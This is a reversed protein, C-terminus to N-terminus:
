DGFLSRWVDTADCGISVARDFSCCCSSDTVGSFSTLSCPEFELMFLMFSFLGVLLEALTVEADGSGSAFLLVLMDTSVLSSCDALELFDDDGVSDLCLEFDEVDRALLLLLCVETLALLSLRSFGFLFSSNLLWGSVFLWSM